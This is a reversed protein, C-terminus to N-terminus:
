KQIENIYPEGTKSYYGDYDFYINIPLNSM